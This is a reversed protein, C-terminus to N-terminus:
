DLDSVRLGPCRTCEYLPVDVGMRELVREAVDPGAFPGAWWNDPRRIVRRRSVTACTGPHIRAQKTVTDVYLWYATTERM